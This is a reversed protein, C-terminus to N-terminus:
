FELTALFQDLRWVEEDFRGAEVRFTVIIAQGRKITVVDVGRVVSPISKLFPNAETQVYVYELRIATDGEPLVYDSTSLVQYAALTQARELTLSDLINRAAADEGIATVAVQLTTQFAPSKPDRVRFLYDGQQDLLWGAPYQALVGATLDRFTATRTLTQDKIFFGFTLGAVATLIVLLHAWRDSREPVAEKVAPFVPRDM